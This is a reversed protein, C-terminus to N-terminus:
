YAVWLIDAAELIMMVNKYTYNAEREIERTSDTLAARREREHKQQKLKTQKMDNKEQEM